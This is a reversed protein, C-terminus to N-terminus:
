ANLRKFAQVSRRKRHRWVLEWVRWASELKVPIDMKSHGIRRDEFHIPVEIIRYGLRECLYAMEVQFIYGNSRINELGIELLAARRWLKFGATMDRVRIGLLTRSYLNAWWSLFRRWWSWGEDLSGGPVYRSGIIVDAGTALIVGLMAPIYSPSHSFDADMQVVFEAGEALAQTMGAVYATGLGGKGVRHLVGMRAAGNRNFRAALEDAIQGTGDPSNDDVVLLRLSPLHLGLVAESIAALNEAENYTPIVVTVPTQRWAQPLQTPQNFPQPM